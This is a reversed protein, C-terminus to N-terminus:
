RAPRAEAPLILGHGEDGRVWGGTLDVRGDGVVIGGLNLTSQLEGGVGERGVPVARQSVARAPEGGRRLDELTLGGRERGVHGLLHALGESRGLSLYGLARERQAVVGLM